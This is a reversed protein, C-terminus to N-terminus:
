APPDGLLPQWELVDKPCEPDWPFRNTRECPWVIQFAQLPETRQMVTHWYWEASLMRYKGLADQPPLAISRCQFPPPLLGDWLGGHVPDKGKSVQEHVASIVNILAQQPLGVVICDPVGYTKPFGVSYIFPSDKGNPDIVGVGYWGHSAVRAAIEKEYETM